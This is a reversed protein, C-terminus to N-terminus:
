ADGCMEVAMPKVKRLCQNGQEKVASASKGMQEGVEKWTYGQKWRLQLVAFCDPNKQKFLAWVENMCAIDETPFGSLVNDALQEPLEDDPDWGRKKKEDMFTRNAVQYLWTSFKSHGKFKEISVFLKEWVLQCLDDQRAIDHPSYRRALNSVMKQHRLILVAWAHETQSGNQAIQDILEQDSPPTNTANPM